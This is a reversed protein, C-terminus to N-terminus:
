KKSYKIEKTIKGRNIKSVVTQSINYMKAIKIQTFKQKKLLNKIENINEITLILTRKNTNIKSKNNIEELTINLEKCIQTTEIKWSIGKLICMVNYKSINFKKAIDLNSVGKLVADIINKIDKSKLKSNGITEGKTQRNKRVKDDVNDQNTGLFLHYPNVCLGNDCKHCVMLSKPKIEGFFCEYVFRHSRVKHGIWFSGYKNNFNLGTWIMCSNLDPTGDELYKVEVNNWFRNILYEPYNMMNWIEM